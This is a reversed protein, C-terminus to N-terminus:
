TLNFLQAASRHDEQFGAEFKLQQSILNLRMVPTYCYQKLNYDGEKCQM